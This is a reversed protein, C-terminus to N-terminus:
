VWAVTGSLRVTVLLRTPSASSSPNLAPAPAAAAPGERFKAVLRAGDELVNQVQAAPRPAVSRGDGHAVAVRTRLCLPPHRGVEDEEDLLGGRDDLLEVIQPM